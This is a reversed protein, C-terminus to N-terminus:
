QQHVSAPKTFVEHTTINNDKAKIGICAIAEIAQMARTGIHSLISRPDTNELPITVPTPPNLDKPYYHFINPHQEDIDINFSKSLEKNM